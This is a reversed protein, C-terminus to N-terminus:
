PLWDICPGCVGESCCGGIGCTLGELSKKRSRHAAGKCTHLVFAVSSIPNGDSFCHLCDRCQAETPDFNILNDDENYGTVTYCPCVRINHKKCFKYDDWSEIVYGAPKHPIMANKRKMSMDYSSIVRGRLYRDILQWHKGGETWARTPWMLKLDPRKVLAAVVQELVDYRGCDGSRAIRLLAGRPLSMIAYHFMEAPQQQLWTLRRFLSLNGFAPNYRGYLAYCHDHCWKTKWRCTKGYALGLDLVYVGALKDGAEGRIIIDATYGDPLEVEGGKTLQAKEM